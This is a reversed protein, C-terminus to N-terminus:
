REVWWNIGRYPKQVEKLRERDTLYKKKMDVLWGAFHEHLGEPSFRHPEPCTYENPGDGKLRGRALCLPCEVEGGPLLRFLDSGCYPCELPGKKYEEATFLERGLKQAYEKYEPSEVGEAPLTAHVVWCDVFRMQLFRPFVMASARAYGEWGPMGYPIVAVFPKGKTKEAYNAAGMMRDTLAKFGAHPGLFYIPFGLVLADAELIKNLIFNFDDKVSCATGPELCRYCARCPGIQYDTLRIMERTCPETVAGLIEKIILETNGFRRESIVLGLVKKM